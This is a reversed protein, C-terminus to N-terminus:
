KEKRWYIGCQDIATANLEVIKPGFYDQMALQVAPLNFDDIVCFGGVVLRPYLATLAEFTSGYMDGDLRLLAFSPRGLGDGSGGEQVLSPLTNKFWGPVFIVRDDLLGYRVFNDCVDVLSARLPPFASHADNKDQECEGAPLGEFSDCVFVRRTLDGLAELVGRMFICAGGRWVGTEILDGPIKEQIIEEVLMRINWLRTAGIMTEATQPWDQGFRRVEANYSGPFITYEGPKADEPKVIQGKSDVVIGHWPDIPPDERLEGTLSRALLDLYRNYLKEKPTRLDITVTEDDSM